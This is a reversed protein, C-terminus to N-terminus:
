IFVSIIQSKGKQFPVLLKLIQRKCKMSYGVNSSVRFHTVLASTVNILFYPMM